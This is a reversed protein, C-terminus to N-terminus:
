ALYPLNISLHIAVVWEKCALVADLGAEVSVAQRLRERSYSPASSTPVLLGPPRLVNKVFRALLPVAICM